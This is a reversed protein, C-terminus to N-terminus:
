LQLTALAMRNFILTQPRPEEQERSGVITHKLKLIDIAVYM